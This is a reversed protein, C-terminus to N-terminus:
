RLPLRRRHPRARVQKRMEESSILVKVKQRNLIRIPYSSSELWWRPNQKVTKVHKLMPEDTDHLHVSGRRQRQQPRGAQRVRPLGAAAHDAGLRHHGPLRRDQRLPAGQRDGRGAPRPLQDDPDATSMLPIKAGPAPPVVVHKIKVARLVDQVRDYAGRVVVVDAAGAERILKLDDPRSVNSM